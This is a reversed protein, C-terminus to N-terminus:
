PTLISVVNVAANFGWFSAEVLDDSYGEKVITSSTLNLEGAVVLVVSTQNLDTSWFVHDISTSNTITHVAVIDTPQISLFPDNYDPILDNDAAWESPNIIDSPDPISLAALAVNTFLIPLLSCRMILHSHLAPRNDKNCQWTAM